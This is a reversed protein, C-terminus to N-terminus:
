ITRVKVLAPLAPAGTVCLAPTAREHWTLAAADTVLALGEGAGAGAGTGGGTGTSIGIATATATATASTTGISNGATAVATATATAAPARRLVDPVVRPPHPKEFLRTPTQGIYIPLLRRWLRLTRAHQPAAQPQSTSPRPSPPPLNPHPSPGRRSM